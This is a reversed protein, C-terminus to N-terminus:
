NRGPNWIVVHSEQDQNITKVGKNEWDVKQNAIM